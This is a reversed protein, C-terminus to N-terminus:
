AKTTPSIGQFEEVLAVPHQQECRFLRLWDSSFFSRLVELLLLTGLSHFSLLRPVLADEQAAHPLPRFLRSPKFSSLHNPWTARQLLLPGSKLLREGLCWGSFASPLQLMQKIKIKITRILDTQLCFHKLIL